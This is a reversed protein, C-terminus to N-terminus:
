LRFEGLSFSASLQIPKWILLLQFIRSKRWIQVYTKDGISFLMQDNAFSINVLNLKEDNPHFNFDPKDKLKGLCKHLYEMVLVFLLPSIPDGQRLGCKVQLLETYNGNIPYMYSVSSVYIM